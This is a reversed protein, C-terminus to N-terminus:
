DERSLIDSMVAGVLVVGKFIYQWFPELNMLSMGNNLSEMMLAGLLAGAVGGRGGMLSTGGIVCAAIADLELLAGADPSASGVRATMLVGALATLFGMMVFVGLTVRRLNVGSMVAAEPSSGIAFVHRGWVTHRALVHIAVAVILMLLVPYPIGEYSNMMATALVLCVRLGWREKWSGLALVACLCVVWSITPALYGSGFTLIFNEELPITSNSTVWMSLGRFIMMGGLTAIFAPVRFRTVLQGQLGGVLLGGILVLAVSNAPSLGHASMGIAMVGGLFSALSGVGLDIHRAVIVLVMGACLIGTVSTQRFLNSLNRPQLFAGETLRDFVFWLVFLVGVLAYTRLGARLSKRISELM